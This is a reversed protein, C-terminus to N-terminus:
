IGELDKLRNAQEAEAQLLLYGNPDGNILEEEAELLRLTSKAASRAREYNADVNGFDNLFDPSMFTGNKKEVEADHARIIETLSDVLTQFTSRAEAYLTSIPAM